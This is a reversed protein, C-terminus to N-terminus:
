RKLEGCLMIKHQPHDNTGSHVISEHLPHGNASSCDAPKHRPHDRAEQTFSLVLAFFVQVLAALVSSTTFSESSAPNDIGNSSACNKLVLATRSAWPVVVAGFQFYNVM